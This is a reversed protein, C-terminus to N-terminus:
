DGGRCPSEFCSSFPALEGCVRGFMGLVGFVGPVGGARGSLPRSGCAVGGCCGGRDPSRPGFSDGSSGESNGFRGRPTISRSARVISLRALSRAFPPSAPSCACSIRRRASSNNLLADGSCFFRNISIACSIARFAGRSPAAGSACGPPAGPAPNGRGAPCSDGRSPFSGLLPEEDCFSDCSDPMRSDGAPDAEGPAPAPSSSRLSGASEIPPPLALSAFGRPAPPRPFPTEPGAAPMVRAAGPARQSPRVSFTSALARPSLAPVCLVSASSADSGAATRPAPDAADPNPPPTRSATRPASRATSSCATGDRCASKMLRTNPRYRSRAPAACGPALM